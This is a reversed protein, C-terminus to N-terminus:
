RFRKNLSNLFGMSRGVMLANTRCVRTKDSGVRLSMYEQCEMAPSRYQNQWLLKTARSRMVDFESATLTKKHVKKKEDTFSLVYLGKKNSSSTVKYNHSHKGKSINVEFIPAASSRARPKAKTKAEAGLAVFVMLCICLVYRM